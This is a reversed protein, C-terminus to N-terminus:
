SMIRGGFFLVYGGSEVVSGVLEGSCSSVQRSSETQLFLHSTPFLWVPVVQAM